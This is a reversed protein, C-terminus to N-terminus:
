FLYAARSAAGPAPRLASGPQGDLIYDVIANTEALTVAGDTIVPATGLPSVAKYAPPALPTNPHRDYLKIDYPIRHLTILNEYTDYTM